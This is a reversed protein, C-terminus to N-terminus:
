KKGKTGSGGVLDENNVPTEVETMSADMFFHQPFSVLPFPFLLDSM